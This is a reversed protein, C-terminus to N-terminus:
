WYRHDRDRHGDRGWNRHGHRHRHDRDWNRHRDRHYGHWYRHDRDRHHGHRYRNRHRHDRDGHQGYRDRHRRDRHGGQDRHGRRFRREAFQDVSKAPQRRRGRETGGPTRHSEFLCVDFQVGIHSGAFAYQDAADDNRLRDDAHGDGPDHRHDGHHEDADIRG